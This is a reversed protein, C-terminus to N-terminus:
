ALISFVKTLLRMEVSQLVRLAVEVEESSPGNTPLQSRFSQSQTAQTPYDAESDTDTESDVDMNHELRM